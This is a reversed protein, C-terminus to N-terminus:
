NLIGLFDYPIDSQKLHVDDIFLDSSYYSIRLIYTNIMQQLQKPCVRQLDKIIIETKKKCDDRVPTSYMQLPINYKKAISDIKLLYEDTLVSMNQRKENAPIAIRPTYGSTQIFPINATWYCPITKIRDYLHKTYESKYEHIPFPKLFYQYAYRDVDNGFTMPTFLIIIEEPLNEPNTELYNRLLFYHGAMTIAQNCALSVISDYSKESPYLAHGTSDGLILKKVKKYTRTKSVKVSTRVEGGPIDGFYVGTVIKYIELPLTMVLVAIVYICILSIFRKM